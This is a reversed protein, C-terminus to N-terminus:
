ASGETPGIMLKTVNTKFEDMLEEMNKGNAGDQSELWYSMFSACHVYTEMEETPTEERASIRLRIATDVLSGCVRLDPAKSDDVM